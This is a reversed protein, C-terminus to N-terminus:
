DNPEDRMGLCVVGEKLGWGSLVYSIVKRIPAYPETYCCMARDWARLSLVDGKQYGRDNERIEFTKDGSAVADYFDKELKLEHIKMPM